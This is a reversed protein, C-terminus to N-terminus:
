LLSLLYSCLSELLLPMFTQRHTVKVFVTAVVINLKRM